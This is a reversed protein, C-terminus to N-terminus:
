DNSPVLIGQFALARKLDGSIRVKQAFLALQPNLQGNVLHLFDRQQMTFVIEADERRNVVELTDDVFVTWVGGLYGKLELRYRGRLYERDEDDLIDFRYLLEANFFEKATKVKSRWQPPHVEQVTHASIPTGRELDYAGGLPDDHETQVEEVEGNADRDEDDLDDDEDDAASQEQRREGGRRRHEDRGRGRRGHRPLPGRQGQQGGQSERRRESSPEGRPADDSGEEASEEEAGDGPPQARRDDDRESRGERGERAGLRWPREGEAPDDPGGREASGGPDDGTQRVRVERRRETSAGREDFRAGGERGAATSGLQTDDPVSGGGVAGLPAADAPASRGAREQGPPQVPPAAQPTSPPQDPREWEPDPDTGSGGSGFTDDDGRMLAKWWSKGFPPLVM